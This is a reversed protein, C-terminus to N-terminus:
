YEVVIPSVTQREHEAPVYEVAMPAIAQRDHESPVYEVVGLAELESIHLGHVIHSEWAVVDLVHRGALVDSVTAHM